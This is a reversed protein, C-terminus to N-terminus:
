RGYSHRYIYICGVRRNKHKVEEIFEKASTGFDGIEDYISIEVSNDAKNEISYWKNM